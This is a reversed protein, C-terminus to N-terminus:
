ALALNGVAKKRRMGFGVAAFGILMMAWTTPEPVGSVALNDFEFSNLGVSEFQAGTIKPGGASFFSM